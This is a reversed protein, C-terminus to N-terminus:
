GIAPMTLLLGSLLQDSKNRVVTRHSWRALAKERVAEFLKRDMIPPQEGPLIEHKYKVEGIYFRNSMLYYLTGRGFPIALVM